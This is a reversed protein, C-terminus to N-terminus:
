LPAGVLKELEAHRVSLDAEADLLSLRARLIQREAEILTNFNVRGNEYGSQAAERAARAQPLLTERLLRLKDRGAELGALTEGLMGNLRSEAAAVRERAAELRYAAERERARRASQQLPINIEVMFDWNERGARPRNDTLALTFDPYRNLQTLDKSKEAAVTGLREMNLEPSHAKAQVFLTALILHEPVRPLYQPETLLADADRSLMANLKAAADRQRRQNEVLDLKLATIEIQVQLADQQPVLGVGYRKLVLSELASALQLTERLIRTEAVAQYYRAYAIKINAELGVRLSDHVSGAQAAQAQALEGQLGLKGPFPLSQIARYRTTGTEGPLLSASRGQSMANTFDMLEVQFKPDPLAQAPLVQEQMAQADLRRARLEPNHERAYAM